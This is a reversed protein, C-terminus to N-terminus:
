GSHLALNSPPDAKTPFAPIREFFSSHVRDQNVYSVALKEKSRYTALSKTEIGLYKAVVSCHVWNIDGKKGCTPPPALLVIKLLNDAYAKDITSQVVTINSLDSSAPDDGADVTDCELSNASSVHEGAEEKPPQM